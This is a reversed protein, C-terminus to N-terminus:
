TPVRDTAIGDLELLQIELCSFEHCTWFERGREGLAKLRAKIEARRAAIADASQRRM